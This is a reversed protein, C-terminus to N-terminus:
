TTTSDFRDMIDELRSAHQAIDAFPHNALLSIRERMDSNALLCAARTPGLTTQLLTLAVSADRHLAYVWLVFREIAVLVSVLLAPETSSLLEHLFPVARPLMARFQESDSECFVYCLCYGAYLTVEFVTKEIAQCIRDVLGVELCRGVYKGGDLGFVLRLTQLIEVKTKDCKATGLEEVVHRLVGDYRSSLLLKCQLVDPSRIVVCLINVASERCNPLDCLERVRTLLGQELVRRISDASIECINSVAVCADNLLGQYPTPLRRSPIASVFM